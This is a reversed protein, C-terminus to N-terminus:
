EHDDEEDDIEDDFNDEESSDSAGFDDQEEGENWFDDDDIIPPPPTENLTKPMIFGEPIDKKSIKVTEAAKKWYAVKNDRYMVGADVNASSTIEPDDLLLLISRLVSEVSQVSSWRECALEGSQEDEGAAHLISICVKGDPYINPHHIPRLFRFTPPFYPYKDTFSMEAKLYAGDFASESNIVILGITWKFLSEENLEIKVWKEKSFGKYENMLRQKAAAAM